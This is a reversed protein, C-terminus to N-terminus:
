SARAPQTGALRFPWNETRNPKPSGCRDHGHRRHQTLQLCGEVALSKTAAPAQHRRGALAKPQARVWPAHRRGHRSANRDVVTPVLRPSSAGLSPLRCPPAYPFHMREQSPDSSKATRPSGRGRVCHSIWGDDTLSPGCLWGLPVLATVPLQAGQDSNTQSLLPPSLPPLSTSWM